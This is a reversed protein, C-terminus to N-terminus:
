MYAEFHRQSEESISSRGHLIRHNDVIVIEGPNMRISKKPQSDFYNRLNDLASQEEASYGPRLLWPAFFVKYHGGVRELVASSVFTETDRIRRHLKLGCLVVQDEKSLRLELDITDIFDTAGQGQDQDATVCYWAIVDVDPSDNHLGIPEAKFVLQRKSKDLRVELRSILYGLAKCVENYGSQSYNGTLHFYGERALTDLIEQNM